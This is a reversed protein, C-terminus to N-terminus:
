VLIGGLVSARLEGAGNASVKRLRVVLSDLFLGSNADISLAGGADANVFFVNGLRSINLSYVTGAIAAWGGPELYIQGDLTVEIELQEGVTMVYATLSSLFCPVVVNVIPYWQNQIPAAQDLPWHRFNYARRDALENEIGM